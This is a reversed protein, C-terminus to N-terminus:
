DRLEIDGARIRSSGDAHEIISVDGAQISSSPPTRGRGSSVRPTPEFKRAFKLFTANARIGDFDPNNIAGRPDHFGADFSAQLATVASGVNQLQAEARALLLHLEANSPDAAIAREAAQKATNYNGISLLQAISSASPPKEELKIPQDVPLPSKADCAALGPTCILLAFFYLSPRM